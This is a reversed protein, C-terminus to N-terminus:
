RVRLGPLGEAKINVFYHGEAVHSPLDRGGTVVQEVESIVAVPLGERNYLVMDNLGIEATTSTPVASTWTRPVAAGPDRPLRVSLKAPKVDVTQGKPTKASFRQVEQPTARVIISDDDDRVIIGRLIPNTLSM